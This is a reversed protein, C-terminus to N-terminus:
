LSLGLGQQIKRISPEFVEAVSAMFVGLTKLFGDKPGVSGPRWMSKIGSYPYHVQWNVRFLM